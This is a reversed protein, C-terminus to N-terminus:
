LRGLGGLGMIEATGRAMESVDKEGFVAVLERGVGRLAQQRKEDSVSDIGLVPTHIIEAIPVNKESALRKVRAVQRQQSEYEEAELIEEGRVDNVVYGEVGGGFDEIAEQADGVMEDVMAPKPGTVLLFRADEMLQAAGTLTRLYGESEAMYKSDLFRIIDKMGFKLVSKIWGKTDRLNKLSRALDRSSELLAIAGKTPELDLVVKEIGREGAAALLEALSILESTQGTSTPAGFFTKLMDAYAVLGYPGEFQEMYEDFDGQSKRGPLIHEFLRPSIAGAYLRELSTRVIRNGSFGRTRQPFVTRQIAGGKKDCDILLADKGQSAHYVAISSAVVSKGVGGKGSVAIVEM